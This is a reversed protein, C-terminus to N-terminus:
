WDSFGGRRQSLDNQSLRGTAGVGDDRLLIPCYQNLLTNQVFTEDHKIEEAPCHGGDNLDAEDHVRVTESNVDRIRVLIKSPFLVEAM